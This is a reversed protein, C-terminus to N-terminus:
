AQVSLRNVVLGDQQDAVAGPALFGVFLDAFQGGVELGAPSGPRRRTGRAASGAISSAPPSSGDDCTVLDDVARQEGRAVDLVVNGQRDFLGPGLAVEFDGVARMQSDM